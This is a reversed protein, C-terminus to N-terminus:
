NHVMSNALQMAVYACNGSMVVSAAGLMQMSSGSVASGAFNRCVCFVAAGADACKGLAGLCLHGSPPINPQAEVQDFRKALRTRHHVYASTM